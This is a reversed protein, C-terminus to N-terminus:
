RGEVTAQQTFRQGEHEVTITLDHIGRRQGGVTARYVGPAGAVLESEIRDVAHARPYGAVRVRAGSLANGARDTVRVEITSAILTPATSWGLAASRAAEDITDDYHVAKDYYGPIVQAGGSAATTALVMMAVLNGGLLVLIAITWKMAASM